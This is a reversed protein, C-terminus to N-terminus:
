HSLEENILEDSVFDMAWAQGPQTPVFRERRPVVMKRRKPQKSRLQLMEERSTAHRPACTSSMPTEGRFDLGLMIETGIPKATEKLLVAILLDQKEASCILM